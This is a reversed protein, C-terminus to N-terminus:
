LMMKEGNKGNFMNELFKLKFNIKCCKMEEWLKEIIKDMIFNKKLKIMGKMLGNYERWFM